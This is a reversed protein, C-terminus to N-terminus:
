DEKYNIDTYTFMLLDRYSWVKLISNETTWTKTSSGEKKGEGYIETLSDSITKNLEIYTMDTEEEDIFLMISVEYLKENQFNYTVLGMAGKIKNFDKVTELISKNEEDIITSEGAIQQKLADFSSDWKIGQYYGSSDPKTITYIIIACVVITFVIIGGIIILKRKRNKIKKLEEEKAKAIIDSTPCGCIPCMEAKDSVHKGCEPCILLAM